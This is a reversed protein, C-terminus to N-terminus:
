VFSLSILSITRENVQTPKSKTWREVQNIWLCLRQFRENLKFSVYSTNDDIIIPGALNVSPNFDDIVAYMAFKPLQRTLEFM